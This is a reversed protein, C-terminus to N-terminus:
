LVFPSISIVEDNEIWELKKGRPTLVLHPKKPSDYFEQLDNLLRSTVKFTRAM